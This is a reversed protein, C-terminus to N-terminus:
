VFKTNMTKITEINHLGQDRSWRTKISNETRRELIVQRKCYLETFRPTDM